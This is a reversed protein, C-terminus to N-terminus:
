PTSQTSPAFSKKKPVEKVTQKIKLAAKEALRILSFNKPYKDATERRECEIHDEPCYFPGESEQL